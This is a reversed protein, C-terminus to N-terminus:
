EADETPNTMEREIEADVQALMRAFQMGLDHRGARLALLRTSYLRKSGRSGWWHDLWHDLPKWGDGNRGYESWAKEVRVGQYAHMDWGKTFGSGTPPKVDPEVAETFRMARAIRLEQRLAEFEVTEKKTMSM